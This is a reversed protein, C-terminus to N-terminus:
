AVMTKEPIKMSAKTAAAMTANTTGATRARGPRNLVRRTKELSDIKYPANTQARPASLLM